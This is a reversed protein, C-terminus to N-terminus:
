DNLQEEKFKLDIEQKAIHEERIAIESQKKQM